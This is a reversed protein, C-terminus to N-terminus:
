QADRVARDYAAIAERYVPGPTGTGIPRDDLEVVPLLEKTSSSLWIEDAHHLEDVAIRRTQVPNWAQLVERAVERTIGPLVTEDLMPTSVVGDRVLFVNSAAGETVAGERFLIAEAADADHADQRLLVNAALAVTKLDCRDWRIDERSVARIGTERAARTDPLPTTMAFVTPQTAPPFAHDRRSPAGRTIQLYIACSPTGAADILREFLSPWHDPPMPPPIRLGALSHELRRLHDRLRFPRGGYVPVVEYVGDGFLFGRDLPSISAEELPLFRGNLYCLPM